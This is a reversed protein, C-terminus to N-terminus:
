MQYAAEPKRRVQRSRSTFGALLGAVHREALRSTGAASSATSLLHPHTILSHLEKVLSLKENLCRKQQACIAFRLERSDSQDQLESGAPDSKDAQSSEFGGELECHGTHLDCILFICSSTIGM